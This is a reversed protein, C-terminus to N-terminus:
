KNSVEMDVAHKEKKYPTYLIKEWGGQVKLDLWVLLSEELIWFRLPIKTLTLDILVTECLLLDLLSQFHDWLVGPDKVTHTPQLNRSSEMFIKSWVIKSLIKILTVLGKNLQKSIIQDSKTEHKHTKHEQRGSIRVKGARDGHHGGSSHLCVGWRSDLWQRNGLWRMRLYRLFELQKLM